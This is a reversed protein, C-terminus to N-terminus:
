NRGFRVAQWVNYGYLTYTIEEIRESEPQDQQDKQRDQRSEGQDEVGAQFVM